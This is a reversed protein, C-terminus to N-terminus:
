AAWRRGGLEIADADREHMVAPVRVGLRGTAGDALGRVIALLSELRHGRERLLARGVLKTVNRPYWGVRRMLHLHLYLMNRAEYYYKWRPVCQTRRVAEHQVLAGDVIRRPHGAKPIRWLLYENDEAWWFFDARPLGVKEVISRSVLFGCWSGWEGISGDPQVSRPFVYTSDQDEESDECLLELCDPDPVMDDDLVWALDYRSSRFEDFGLAWGGGPGLNTESRVVSISASGHCKGPDAPPDSANDVVLIADPKRTQAEIAGLCRELSRPANHTLVMALVTARGKKASGEISTAETRSGDDSQAPSSPARAEEGPGAREGVTRLYRPNIGLRGRGGDLLGRVIALREERGSALQLRRLSYVLHWAAWNGRGHRRALEFFNRAFYYARWPEEEDTPRHDRLASERAASSQLHAVRRATPVDVLVAFGAYRVRSFFDFDEFGFFLKSDPLVGAEAVDRSVLTAGWTSVDVPALDGPLGLPPVVNLSHGSRPVFKRGFPVVAGARWRNSEWAAVRDLVSAVRPAPLHLLAMDDECLYAWETSPDSFAEELGARFGGAPGLNSPLRLMRVDNELEPCHLGGDENVVVLVKEPAFGEQEVLLRVAEGALRPRMHTLVVATVGAPVRQGARHAGTAVATLQAGM